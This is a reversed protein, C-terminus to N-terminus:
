FIYQFFGIEKNEPIGILLGRDLFVNFEECSTEPLYTCNHCAAMNLHHHGQGSSNGIDSCVPDSSCWAAKRISKDLLSFIVDSKGMRSLGGLTGESDGSATYIMFGNMHNSNSNSVYIRERLSSTSYGCEFVLENILMHAITHILVYRPLLEFEKVLNQKVLNEHRDKLKNFRHVMEENTEWEDLMEKDFEIFIGEGYVTNAPLWNNEYKNPEQFLRERGREIKGRKIGSQVSELRSFGYLVKTERLKTVLNVMSLYNKIGTEKEGTNRWEQIIKLEETDKPSTLAAHEELRISDEIRTLNIEEEKVDNSLVIRLAQKISIDEFEELDPQLLDKISEIRDDEDPFKSVTKLFRKGIPSELILLINEVQESRKGPLYIASLTEPFYVNSASKMMAIVPEGCPEVPESKGFWPKWGQCVYSGKENEDLNKTLYTMGESEKSNVGLLNRQKDCHMCKVNLTSLTTGGVSILKLDGNCKPHTSKHVWERWPFDHIHGEKCVIIFPVQILRGRRDCNCTKPGKDTLTLEKMKKCYECYHWRPFRVMPLLLDQNPVPKDNKYGARFDPPLRLSDVDLIKKLRQEEIEFESLHKSRENTGNNIYWKDLSGMMMSIGDASVSISGPGFPTIVQARRVPIDAM